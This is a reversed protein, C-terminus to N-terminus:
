RRLALLEDFMQQATTIVRTNARYMTSALILDILNGGIDTNSLEVAGAVITGIGQEGPSGTIPLGSNAAAAFLNEGKQELGNPNSFRALRVHGLDRTIGNSFVGRIVGDEGMIFSTLTGAASGDQRSVALSSNDTQLGSLQSFDLEFELPSASSVQRREISVGTNTASIFNGEGDFTLLGTGVAIDVGSAPGNDPSDAFWRYTTSTSDRSELVATLRVALPIGLTDYVLFDAVASEGVAQQVSGFPLNITDPVTSGSALFQMSSLRIDIANDVGNNGVMQIRGDPTVSGGPNLTVSPDPDGDPIPNLPDDTVSQIGMSEEMFDILDLVTTTTTIEFEKTALARGGKYPAFQLTGPQFPHEYSVDDRALVNV